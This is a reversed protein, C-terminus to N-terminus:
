KTDSKLWEELKEKLLDLLRSLILELLVNSLLGTVPAPVDLAKGLQAFYPDPAESLIVDPHDHPHLKKAVALVTYSLCILVKIPDAKFQEDLTGTQLWHLLETKHGDPEPIDKLLAEAIKSVLLQVSDLDKFLSKLLELLKDM